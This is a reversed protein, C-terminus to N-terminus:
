TQIRRTIINIAMKLILDYSINAVSIEVFFPIFFSFFGFFLLCIRFLNLRIEYKFLTIVILILQPILYLIHSFAALPYLLISTALLFQQIGAISLGDRTKM